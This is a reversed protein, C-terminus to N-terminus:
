EIPQSTQGYVNGRERKEKKVTHVILMVVGGLLVVAALGAVMVAMRMRGGMRWLGVVSVVILTVRVVLWLNNLSEGRRTENLEEHLPSTLKAM